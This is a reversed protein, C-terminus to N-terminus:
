THRVEFQNFLAKRRARLTRDRTLSRFEHILDAPIHDEDLTM